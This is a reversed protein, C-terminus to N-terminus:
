SVMVWAPMSPSFSIDARSVASVVAMRSMSISTAWLPRLMASAWKTGSSAVTQTVTM